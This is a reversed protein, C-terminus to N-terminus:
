LRHRLTTGLRGGALGSGDPSIWIANLDDRTNTEEQSWSVGDWHIALGLQGVAWVDAMGSGAIAHIPQFEVTSPIVSPKWTAGDYHYATHSEAMTWIDHGNRGWLSSLDATTFSPASEWDGTPKRHRVIGSKGCFWIDGPGAIWMGLIDSVGPAQSFTWAVGDYHSLAGSKGAAWIDNPASGAIANWGLRGPNDPPLGSAVSTLTNGDFHWIGGWESVAWVDTSSSGWVGTLTLAINPPGPVIRMHQPDPGVRFWSGATVIARGDTWVARLESNADAQLAPVSLAFAQGQLRWLQGYLGGLFVQDGTSAGTFAHVYPNVWEIAVSSWNGMSDFKMVQYAAEDSMWLDALGTGFFRRVLGGSPRLSPFTSTFGSELSGRYVTQRDVYWFDDRGNSWMSSPGTAGSM